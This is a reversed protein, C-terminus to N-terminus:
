FWGKLKPIFRGYLCKGSSSKFIFKLIEDIEFCRLSLFQLSIVRAANYCLKVRYAFLIDTQKEDGAFV